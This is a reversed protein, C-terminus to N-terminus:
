RHAVTHGTRTRDDRRLASPAACRRPAASRRAALVARLPHASRRRPSRRRRRPSRHPRGGAARPPTGGAVRRHARRLAATRRFQPRPSARRDVRELAAESREARDTVGAADGRTASTPRGDGDSDWGEMPHVCFRNGVRGAQRDDAWPRASGGRREVSSPTSTSGSVRTRSLHDRFRAVTDFASLPVFATMRRQRAQWDVRYTLFEVEIGLSATPSSPTSRGTGPTPSRRIPECASAHM